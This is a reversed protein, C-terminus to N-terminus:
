LRNGRRSRERVLDVVSDEETAPRGLLRSIADAAIRAAELDGAAGFVKVHDALTAIFTARANRVKAVTRRTEDGVTAQSVECSVTRSSERGNAVFDEPKSERRRWWREQM